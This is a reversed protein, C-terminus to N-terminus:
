EDMQNSVELDIIIERAVGIKKVKISGHLQHNAITEANNNTSDMTIDYDTQIVNDNALPKLLNNVELEWSAFTTAVIPEFLYKQSLTDVNKVIYNVLAAGSVFRSYPNDVTNATTKEDWVVYGYTPKYLVPNIPISYNDLTTLDKETFDCRLEKILPLTARSIGAPARYPGALYSKAYAHQVAISSPIDIYIKENTVPNIYYGETYHVKDLYVVLAKSQPYESVLSEIESVTPKPNVVKNTTIMVQLGTGAGLLTKTTYSGAFNEISREPYNTSIIYPETTIDEVTGEYKKDDITFEFVDGVVYNEAEDIIATVTNEYTEKVYATSLVFFMRDEAIQTAYNITELNEFEPFTMSDITVEVSDYLHIAEKVVTNNVTNSGSDGGSIIGDMTDTATPVTSYVTSYEKTMRLGIDLGNFSNVLNELINDFQANTLTGFDVRYRTTEYDTGNVTVAGYIVNSIKDINIAVKLGNYINTKYNTTVSVLKIEEGAETVPEGESDKLIIGGEITGYAADDSALRTVYIGQYSKLYEGLAYFVPFDETLFQSPDGYVATFDKYTKYYNREGIPGTPARLIFAPTYTVPTNFQNVVETVNVRVRPLFQEM